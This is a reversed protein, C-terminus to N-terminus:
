NGCDKIAKAFAELSLGYERLASEAGIRADELDAAEDRASAPMMPVAEHFAEGKVVGITSRLQLAAAGASDSLANCGTVSMEAAAPNAILLFALAVQRM